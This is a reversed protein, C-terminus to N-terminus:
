VEKNKDITAQVEAYTRCLYGNGSEMKSRVKALDCLPIILKPVSPFQEVVGTLCKIVKEKSCSFITGKNLRGYPLSPGVYIVPSVGDHRVKPTSSSVDPEAYKQRAAM